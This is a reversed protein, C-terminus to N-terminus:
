WDRIFFHPPFLSSNSPVQYMYTSCFSAELMDPHQHTLQANFCVWGLRLLSLLGVESWASVAWQLRTNKPCRGLVCGEQSEPRPLGACLSEPLGEARAASRCLVARKRLGRGCTKSCQLRFFISNAHQKGVVKLNESM